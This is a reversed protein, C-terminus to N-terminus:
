VWPVFFFFFIWQYSMSDRLLEVLIREQRDTSVYTEALLMSKVDATTSFFLCNLDYCATFGKKETINPM